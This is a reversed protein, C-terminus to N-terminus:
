FYLSLVDMSTTSGLCGLAVLGLIVAIWVNTGSQHMGEYLWNFLGGSRHEVSYQPFYCTQVKAFGADIVYVIGVCLM